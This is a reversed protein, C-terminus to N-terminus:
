ASRGARGGNRRTCLLGLFVLLGPTFGTGAQCGGGAVQAGPTPSVPAACALDAADLAGNCDDDAGNDCAEAAEPHVAANGDDCDEGSCFGDADADVCPSACTGEPACTLGDSCPRDADCAEGELGPKPPRCALDETACYTARCTAEAEGSLGFCNRGLCLLLAEYVPQVEATGLDHCQGPCTDDAPDCGLRCADAFACDWVGFVPPFCGQYAEKCTLRACADLAMANSEDCNNRLCRDLVNVQQQAEATGGELCSTFCFNNTCDSFCGYVEACTDDGTALEGFDFCTALENACQQQVCDRRASGQLEACHEASCASLADAEAVIDDEAAERCGKECAADGACQRICFYTEQCSAIKCVVSTDCAGDAGCAEDCLCMNPTNLCTPVPGELTGAIWTAYKDVRTYYTLTTCPDCNPDSMPCGAGASTVGIIREGEAMPLLSPGGSDGFCTGTDVFKSTYFASLVEDITVHTSRKLGSGTSRVGETAGFGVTLVPGEERADVWDALNDANIALPAVDEVPEALYVLGVDNSNSAPDYQPYPVFAAVPYLTGDPLGSMPARADGGVFFFTTAPVVGQQQLDQGKICHGATLLWRPAILTATCFSGYYRSGGKSVLAGVAPYGQEVEGNVIPALEARPFTLAVSETPGRQCASALLSALLPILTPVPHRSASM